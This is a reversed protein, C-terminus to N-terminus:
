PAMKPADYVTTQIGHRKVPVGPHFRSVVPALVRRAKKVDITLYRGNYYREIGFFNRQLFMEPPVFSKLAEAVTQTSYMDPLPTYVRYGTQKPPGNGATTGAGLRVPQVSASKIAMPLIRWHKVGQGM